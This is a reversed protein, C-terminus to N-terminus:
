AVYPVILKKISLNLAETEKLREVLSSDTSTIDNRYTTIQGNKIMVDNKPLYIESIM